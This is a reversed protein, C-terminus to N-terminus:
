FYLLYSNTGIFRPTYYFWNFYAHSVEAAPSEQFEQNEQALLESINEDDAMNVTPYSPM